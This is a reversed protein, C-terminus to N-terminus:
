MEGFKKSTAEICRTRRKGQMWDCKKLEASYDPQPAATDQNDDVGDAKGNKQTPQAEQEQAIQQDGQSAPAGADAEVSTEEAQDDPVIIVVTDQDDTDTAAQEDQEDTGAAVEEDQDDPVIIVVTDQDDADTAAQEDQDNAATAQEGQSDTEVTAQGARVDQNQEQRPETRTSQDEALSVGSLAFTAYVALLATLLRSM